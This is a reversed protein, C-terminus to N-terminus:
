DRGDGIRVLGLAALEGILRETDEHAREAEVDFEAVLSAVIRQLTSGGAILSWVRTGVEDLRFFRDSALDLVLAEGEGGRSVAGPAPRISAEPSIRLPEGRRNSFPAM